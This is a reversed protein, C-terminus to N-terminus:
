AHKAGGESAKLGEKASIKKPDRSSAHGVLHYIRQKCAQGRSDKCRLAGLFFTCYNTLVKREQRPYVANGVGAGVGNRVGAGVVNGVGAGVGNGVGVRVGNGVGTRVRSGVGTGVQTGVRVARVGAEVGVGVQYGVGASVQAGVGAGVRAGMGASVRAGLQAGVEARVGAEVCMGVRAEFKVITEFEKKSTIRNMTVVFLDYLRKNFIILIYSM